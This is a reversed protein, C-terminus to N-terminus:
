RSAAVLDIATVPQDTNRARANSLHNGEILGDDPMHGQVGNVKIHANFDRIRNGRAAFGVADGVVHFAHECAGDVSCIGRITLDEFTWYPATVLFGEVTGLELVATFPQESRVTIRADR